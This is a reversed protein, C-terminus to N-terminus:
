DCEYIKVSQKFLGFEVSSTTSYRADEEKEDSLIFKDWEDLLYREEVPLQLNRSVWYRKRSPLGEMMDKTIYKTIYGTVKDKNKVITATSWGLRYKGLQYIKDKSRVFKVRKDGKVKRIVYRGSWVLESESLGGFLGHFHWAGDKHREPVVLYWMGSNRRGIVKLWSSLKKVCDDYSYRDVKNKDFTLTVFWDWDNSRAYDYVKKRTRKLSVDDVHKFNYSEISMKLVESMRGDFPNIEM